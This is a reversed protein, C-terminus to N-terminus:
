LEPSYEASQAASTNESSVNYSIRSSRPVLMRVAQVPSVPVIIATFPPAFSM